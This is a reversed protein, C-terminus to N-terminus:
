KPNPSGSGDDRGDTTGDLDTPDLGTDLADWMVRESAGSPAESTDAPGGKAEEHRRFIEREADERRAAPTTYKSPAAGGRSARMLLVAAGVACVTGALVVVAVWGNTTVMLIAFRDPVGAANVAYKSEADTTVLSIAPIAAVVGGIAVLIAILRLGWGRLTLAALIAALFVLALPTLWPSWDSGHVDFNRQPSLGDEAVVRAWRLRSAGWFAVAAAALLIAARTKLKRVRKAQEAAPDVAIVGPADSNRAGGTRDSM